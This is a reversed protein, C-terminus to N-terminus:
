AKRGVYVLNPKRKGSFAYFLRYLLNSADGRRFVAETCDLATFRHSALLETVSDASWSRVHQITHFVCGCDPCMVHGAQLDEQNPTTVILLGGPRLIRHIDALIGPMADPLLHELAEVLFVTGASEAPVASPQGQALLCGGFKPHGACRQNAKEVSEPSFEVGGVSYGRDLLRAMLFGPGCGYDLVPGPLAAVREAHRIVLGGLVHSFYEDEKATSRALYDWFRGVKERTWEVEHPVFVDM